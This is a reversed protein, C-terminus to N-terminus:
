YGYRRKRETKDKRMYETFKTYRCYSRVWTGDDKRYGEVFEMGREECEIRLHPNEWNPAYDKKRPPLPENMKIIERVLERANVQKPDIDPDVKRAEPVLTKRVYEEARDMDFTGNRLKRNFNESASMMQNYTRQDSDLTLTTEYTDWNSRGGFRSDGIFKRDEEEIDRREMRNTM